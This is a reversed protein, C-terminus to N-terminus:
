KKKKWKEILRVNNVGYEDFLQFFAEMVDLFYIFDDPQNFEYCANRLRKDLSKHRILFLIPSFFNKLYTSIKM